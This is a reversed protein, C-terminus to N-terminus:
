TARKRGTFALVKEGHLNLSLMDFGVFAAGFEELTFLHHPLGAESGSRPVFTHYEVEDSEASEGDGKPLYVPVSVLVLGDPKVVRLIEGITGRVLELRAHHIVQTSLLADFTNDAFPLRVRTDAQILNGSLSESALWERALKLATPASDLGTVHFGRRAFHVLFRGNGCGLDLIEQCGHEDLLEAFPAAIPPVETFVHGDRRYIDEWPNDNMNEKVPMRQGM